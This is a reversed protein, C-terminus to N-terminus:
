GGQGSSLSQLLLRGVENGDGASLTVVVAPASVRAELFRAAGALSAEFHVDRHDLRAAVSAGSIGPDPAERSAFIETVLVHDAEAFATAFGDILARVRSYTHPQFVAWVQATPYRRRVASLTARIESPHHAYDDIVTVGAAEGLIEFRRRAGHYEPLARRAQEFPVGLQDVAALAALTNLVNHMGPLRNRALGLDRGDRVVLFDSGGTANGRIEEARWEAAPGFGYRLLQGAGPRLASAEPDEACVILSGDVLGAFAEFAARFDGFTPYCDPHDHEVNTVVAVTPRLALFAHDYEDAEIVFHPGRGHRANTGFDSLIGGVIFSPALGAQDLLWAILGSTTTKGHTGAVAVTQYGETLEGLFEDRHVVRIGAQRAAQVEINSDPVASSVIVLDAGFVNEARHQYAVIAGARELAEAYASRAQDSGSVQEGREQLVRAIASLGAGGIGVFHVKRTM